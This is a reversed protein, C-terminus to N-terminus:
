DCVVLLDKGFNYVFGSFSSITGQEPIARGDDPMRVSCICSKKGERKQLLDVTVQKAGKYENETTSVVMGEVNAFM